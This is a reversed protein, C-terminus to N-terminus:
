EWEWQALLTWQVVPYEPHQIGGLIVPDLGAGAFAAAGLALPAAASALLAGAGKLYLNMAKALTLKLREDKERLERPPPVPVADGQRWTDPLQHGLWIHDLRAGATDIQVLKDLQEAPVPIKGKYARATPDEFHSVLLWKGTQTQAIVQKQPLVTAGLLSLEYGARRAPTLVRQETLDLLTSRVAVETRPTPLLPFQSM